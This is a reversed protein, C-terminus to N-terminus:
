PMNALVTNSGRSSRTSIADIGTQPSVDLANKHFIRADPSVALSIELIFSLDCCLRKINKLSENGTTTCKM